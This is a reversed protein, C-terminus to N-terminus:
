VIDNTAPQRASRPETALPDVGDWTGYSAIPRFRAFLENLFWGEERTRRIAEQHPTAGYAFSKADPLNRWISLTAQYFLPLEGIGVSNILAEQQLLYASIAPVAHLFAFLKLPRITARTLIIWPDQESQFAAAFGSLPDRGGWEGHWCVPQMHVTWMEAARSRLAAFLTSEMEFRKLDAWSDWVTFLATRHMDMKPSFVQGQGVGLLRWFRLGPVYWLRPRHIGLGTMAYWREQQPFRVLTFAVVPEREDIAKVEKIVM